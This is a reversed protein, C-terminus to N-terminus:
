MQGFLPLRRQSPLCQGEGHHHLSWPLAHSPNCGLLAPHSWLRGSCCCSNTSRCSRATCAPNSSPLIHYQPSKWLQVFIQTQSTVSSFSPKHSLPQLWKKQTGWGPNRALGTWIPSSSLFVPSGAPLGIGLTLHHPLLEESIDPGALM